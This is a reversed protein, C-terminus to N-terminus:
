NMQFDCKLTQKTPRCAPNLALSFFLNNIDTETLRTQEIELTYKQLLTRIYELTKKTDMRQTLDTFGTLSCLLNYEQDNMCLFLKALIESEKM